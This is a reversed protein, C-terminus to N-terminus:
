ALVAVNGVHLELEFDLQVSLYFDLEGRGVKMHAHEEVVKVIFLDLYEHYSRM